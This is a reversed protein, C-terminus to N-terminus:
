VEVEDDDDTEKKKGEIAALPLKDAIALFVKPIDAGVKDQAFKALIHKSVGSLEFDRMCRIESVNTSSALKAVKDHHNQVIYWSSDLKETLEVALGTWHTIGTFFRGCPSAVLSFVGMKSYDVDVTDIVSLSPNTTFYELMCKRNQYLPCMKEVLEEWDKSFAASNEEVHLATCLLTCLAAKTLPALSERPLTHDLRRLADELREKSILNFKNCSMPLDFCKSGKHKKQGTTFKNNKILHWVQKILNRNSSLGEQIEKMMFAELDEDVVSGFGDNVVRRRKTPTSQSQASSAAKSM